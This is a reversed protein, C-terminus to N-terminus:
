TSIASSYQNICLINRCKISNFIVTKLEQQIFGSQELELLCQRVRRQCVGLEQEFFYYSEQLEDTNNDRCGYVQM